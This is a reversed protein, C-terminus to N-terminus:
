RFPMASAELLMHYANSSSYARYVTLSVVLLVIVVALVGMASDSVKDHM